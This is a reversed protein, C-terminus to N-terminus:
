LIQRGDRQKMNNEIFIQGYLVELINSRVKKRDYPIPGFKDNEKYAEWYDLASQRVLSPDMDIWECFEVFKDDPTPDNYMNALYAGEDRNIVGARILQSAHDICRNYGFKLYKMYDHVTDNYYCEANEYINFTREKRATMFGYKEIMLKTQKIPNWNIYNGLYIGRINKKELTEDDPYQTFDLDRLTLGETNDKVFDEPEYGRMMHEQRTKKNMEIFDNHSFMGVLDLYGQEGWIILPIDYKVAMQTPVSMIGAHEHWFPDAMLKIAHRCTKKVTQPNPTFRILDVGIKSIMNELNAIGTKSNDLHNFTVVLPRLGLVEKVYYVQYHSDKGGSVPVICDYGTDKKYPQVLVRLLREREEWDINAKEEAVRCGGCIGEDDFIIYPKTTFPYLCKRCRELTM